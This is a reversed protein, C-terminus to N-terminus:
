MFDRVSCIQHVSQEDCRIKGKHYAFHKQPKVSGPILEHKGLDGHSERLKM